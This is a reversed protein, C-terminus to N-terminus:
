IYLKYIIHTSGYFNAIHRIFYEFTFFKKIKYLLMQLLNIIKVLLPIKSYIIYDYRM